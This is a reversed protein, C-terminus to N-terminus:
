PTVMAKIKLELPQRGKEAVYVVREIPGVGAPGHAAPDFIVEVQAEEGPKLEQNTKPALGHGPMGFPGFTKVQGLDTSPDAVILSASTCMCSTYIKEILTPGASTNKIAFKKSVKGKAMSISGFDFETPNGILLSIVDATPDVAGSRDPRAFWVLGSIITVALIFYILINKLSM